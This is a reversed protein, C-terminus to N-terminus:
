ERKLSRQVTNEIHDLRSNPTEYLKGDSLFLYGAKCSHYLQSRLGVPFQWSKGNGTKPFSLDNNQM